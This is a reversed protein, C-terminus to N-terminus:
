EEEDVYEYEYEDDDEAEEDDVEEEVEQPSAGRYVVSIAIFNEPEPPLFNSRIGSLTLLGVVIILGVFIDVTRPKQALFQIIKKM